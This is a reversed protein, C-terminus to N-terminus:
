LGGRPLTGGGLAPAAPVATAAPATAVAACASWALRINGCSLSWAVFYRCSAAASFTPTAAFVAAVSAATAARPAIPAAAPLKRAIATPSSSIIPGIPHSVAATSNRGAMALRIPSAYWFIFFPSSWALEPL